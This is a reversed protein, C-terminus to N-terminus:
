DEYANLDKDLMKDTLTIVSGKERRKQPHKTGLYFPARAHDMIM